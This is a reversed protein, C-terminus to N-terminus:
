QRHQRLEQRREFAPLCDHETGDQHQRHDEQGLSQHRSQPQAQALPVGSISSTLRKDLVKPPTLATCSTEKVILSPVIWETIPGFPAPLVVSNLRIVPM